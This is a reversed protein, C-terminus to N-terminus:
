LSGKFSAAILEYSRLRDEFRYCNTLICVEGTEYRRAMAEIAARIRRPSGAICRNMSRDMLRRAEESVSFKEVEEPPLLGQFGYNRAIVDFSRSLALHKGEDDTPACILEVAISTKPEKAFRSPRFTRRYESVVEAGAHADGGLFCAFSFPLGLLAATQATARGSGLLWVELSSQSKLGLGPQARVEAFPVSEEIGGGLHGLLDAVQNPFEDPSIIPRPHALVKAAGADGGTARGVGLDLRGPYFADLVSFQEAVKLASYNRLMVGGSGVRITSTHAGIQAILIEPCTSAFSTANHHEAVWYRHYGLGEMRQALIVSERLADAAVGDHRM